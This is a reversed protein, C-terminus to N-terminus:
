LRRGMRDMACSVDGGGAWYMGSTAGCGRCCRDAGLPSQGLATRRARSAKVAHDPLGVTAFSPLGGALDLEVVVPFGDVGRLGLSHVRSLM